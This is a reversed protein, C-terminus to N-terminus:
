NIPKRPRGRQKLLPAALQDALWMDLTQCNWYVRRKGIRRPPPSIGSRVWREICRRTVHLLEAVQRKTLPQNTLDPM